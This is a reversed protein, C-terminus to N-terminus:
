QHWESAKKQLPNAFENKKGTTLTSYSTDEKALGLTKRYYLFAALFIAAGGLGCGLGIALEAGSSVTMAPAPYCPGVRAAENQTNFYTTASPIKKLGNAMAWSPFDWSFRTSNGLSPVMGPLQQYLQFYYRHCLSGAPPTPASYNLLVTLNSAVFFGWNLGAALSSAPVSSIAMHRLPSRIPYSANPADRDVLLLTFLADAPLASDAFTITPMTKATTQSVELGCSPKAGDAFQVGLTTGCEWESPDVPVNQSLV